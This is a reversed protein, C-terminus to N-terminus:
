PFYKRVPDLCLQSPGGDQEEAARAEVYDLADKFEKFSRYKVERGDMAYSAMRWDGSAFDDLMKSHLDSWTTFPL